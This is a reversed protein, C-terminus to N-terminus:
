DMMQKFKKESMIVYFNSSLYHRVRRDYVGTSNKEM